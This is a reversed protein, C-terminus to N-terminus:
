KQAFAVLYFVGGVGAKVKAYDSFETGLRKGPQVEVGILGQFGTLRIGLVVGHAALVNKIMTAASKAFVPTVDIIKGDVRAKRKKLEHMIELLKLQRQAEIEVLLPFGKLEQAGKIEVREGGAVSVNVDQRITGLGRKVKGTSRLIMGLKEAVELCQQPTTIDPETSVEVLPVGLRDLRYVVHNHDNSVIRASDEEVCISRVGVDGVRGTHALLATRQFGSTNSGDVVTKRMVQLVDVIQAKLLLSIEIATKLAEGNMRHPPEEDLEVLCTSDYAEYVFHRGRHQEQMAATDVGGQEGQVARLYRKVKLPADDERLDGSCSCFLKGSSLQQHVELGCKLGIKAYDM